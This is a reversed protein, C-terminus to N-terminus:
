PPVREFPDTDRFCTDFVSDVAQRAESETIDQVCLLSKSARERVCAQLSIGFDDYVDSYHATRISNPRTYYTDRIQGPSTGALWVQTTCIDGELLLM